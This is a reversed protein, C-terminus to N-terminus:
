RSCIWPKRPPTAPPFSLNPILLPIIYKISSSGLNCEGKVTFDAWKEMAQSLRCNTGEGSEDSGWGVALFQEWREELREVGPREGVKRPLVIQQGQLGQISHKLAPGDIEELVDRRGQRPKFIGRRPNVLPSARRRFCFWVEIRRRDFPWAGRWVGTQDVSDMLPQVLDRELKDAQIAFNEAPLREEELSHYIWPVFLMYRLRTQITSTGPFLQDAFSDRVSGLELEDRSEKEQFLSFIRLARERAKSDHDIWALVSPM